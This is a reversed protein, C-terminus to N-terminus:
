RMFTTDCAHAGLAALAQAERNGVRRLEELRREFRARGAPTELAAIGALLDDLLWEDRAFLHALARARPHDAYRGFAELAASNYAKNLEGLQEFLRRMRKKNTPRAQAAIALADGRARRCLTNLRRVVSAPLGKRGPSRDSEAHRRGEPKQSRKRERQELPVTPEKAPATAPEASAPMDWAGLLQGFGFLAPALFGLLALALVPKMGNAETQTWVPEDGEPPLSVLRDLASTAARAADTM